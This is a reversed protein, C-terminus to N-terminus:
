QKKDLARKYLDVYKEASKNWSYDNNMGNKIITNWVEKNHYSKIAREVADTLGFGNYEKFSFGDGSKEGMHLYEDWDKVTDALGGTKRVIPVTGYKLSYIQSLGCPEYKSPMLFMDSGAEILHALENNYGIFCAAKDPRMEAFSKFMDEYHEEGSGLIVWQVPLKSLYELSRAILDFGKQIALRSVIGIVPTDKKYPMNFQELLQKKNNEKGSFDNVSYNHQILKDTEPNWETYDVGNLIGSFDLGRSNLIKEMGFGLEPTLLENAYTPSVTNIMDAFSIGAKLFNFLGNHEVDGSDKIYDENIEANVATQKPFIGQYGINHITFISRTDKFLKDWSYNDKIYLPIVGTQWDNCHIIDPAWQLRQIIEMVGKSFLIFREDEDPDNTYISERDFYDPCDLFFIEVESEPLLSKYVATNQIKDAVKIPIIGWHKVPALNFEEESISSYKPMFVKVDHGLGAIEIPLSGAVDALGGTKAFPVVESSIYGINM